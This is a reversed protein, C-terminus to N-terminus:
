EGKMVEIWPRLLGAMMQVHLKQDNLAPIYNFGEGGAHLFIERNEQDIEEITELCDASFGPCIVDISTIGLKPLQEMTKDTYPQLWEEKGFRSQFTVRWQSEKLELREAVRKATTQCQAFYPDGEQQYRVPTGHFSFLLHEGRGKEQWSKEITQALANIYLPHDHYSNIFQFPPISRQSKAWEGFADLTSATTACSYQPYLPLVIVREAGQQRLREMAAAISPNGYRMGVEIIIKETGERNLLKGLKESQRQTTILLPSGEPTWVKQYNKASKAPRTRLIIGHLILWWLPRPLDVVRPDSLFEALYRRLAASTPADPTGLNSLLIGIPKCDPLPYDM